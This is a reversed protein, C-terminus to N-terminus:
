FKLIARRTRCKGPDIISDVFADNAGHYCHTIRQPMRSPEGVYGIHELASAVVLGFAIASQSAGQLFALRQKKSAPGLDFVAVGRAGAGLSQL